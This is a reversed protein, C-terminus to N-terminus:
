NGMRTVLTALSEIVRLGPPRNAHFANTKSGM